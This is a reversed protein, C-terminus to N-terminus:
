FTLYAVGSVPVSFTIVVTNQDVYNEMGFIRDGSSNVTVIVPFCGANHNITWVTAATTQDHVFQNKCSEVQLIGTGSSVSNYVRINPVSNIKNVLSSVEEDTLVVCQPKIRELLSIKYDVYYSGDGGVGNKNHPLTLISTEEPNINSNTWNPVLNTGFVGFNSGVTAPLPKTYKLVFDKDFVSLTTVGTDSVYTVYINGDKDENLTLINEFDAAAAGMLIGTNIFEVLVGDDCGTWKQFQIINNPFPKGTTLVLVHGDNTVISTNNSLSVDSLKNTVLGTEPDVYHIQADGAANGTLVLNCDCKNWTMKQYPFGTTTITKFSVLDVLSIAEITNADVRVFLLNLEDSVEMVPDTPLNGKAGLAVSLTLGFSGAVKIVTPVMTDNNHTGAKIYYSDHLESYYFSVHSGQDIDVVGDEEYILTPVNKEWSYIRIGTHTFSLGDGFTSLSVNKGLKSNFTIGKWLDSYFSGNISGIVGDVIEESEVEWNSTAGSCLCDHKNCDCVSDEHKKLLWSISKIDRLSKELREVKETNGFQIEKYMGYSLGATLKKAKSFFSDIKSDCSM